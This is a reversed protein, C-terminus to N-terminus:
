GMGGVCVVGGAVRLKHEMNILWNLLIKLIRKEFNFHLVKTKTVVYFFSSTIATMGGVLFFRYLSFILLEQLGLLPSLNSLM